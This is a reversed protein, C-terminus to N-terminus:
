KGGRRVWRLEFGLGEAVRRSPPRRGSKIERLHASEVGLRKATREGNGYGATRRDLEELVLEDNVPRMNRM